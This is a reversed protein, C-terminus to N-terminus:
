DVGADLSAGTIGRSDPGILYLYAAMRQEPLPNVAPSEAPYASRRMRTNTAGPNICNVRINSTGAVEDALVQALGEIGFKSVAYAGWYARGKRGVSSSTFLVSADASERLMPLLARTLLFPATLNVQLVENWDAPTTHEIGRRQGLIAANHLLGDLRGFELRLTEALTDYDEPKAGRLDMPFIAPQPYGAQEIEDYVQELSEITKGLLIVTAGYAAFTKAAARGIGAGAGTVLIVRHKLLEPDARYHDPIHTPTATSM